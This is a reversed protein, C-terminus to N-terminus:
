QRSLHMVARSELRKNVLTKSLSKVAAMAIMPARVPLARRQRAIRLAIQLAEESTGEEAPSSQSSSTAEGASEEADALRSDLTSLEDRWESLQSELRELQNERQEIDSEVSAVEERGLDLAVM